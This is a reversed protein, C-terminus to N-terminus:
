VRGITRRTASTATTTRASAARSEQTHNRPVPSSGIAGGTGNVDAAWGFGFGGVTSSIRVSSWRHSASLRMGMTSFSSTPWPTVNEFANTEFGSHQGLRELM